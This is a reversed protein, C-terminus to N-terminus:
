SEYESVSTLLPVDIAEGCAAPAAAMTSVEYGVAM